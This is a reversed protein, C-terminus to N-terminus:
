LLACTTADPANTSCASPSPSLSPVSVTTASFVIAAARLLVFPVSRRKASRTRTRGPAKRSMSWPSRKTEADLKPNTSPSRPAHLCVAARFRTPYLAANLPLNVRPDPWVNKSTTGSLNVDTRAPTEVRKELELALGAPALGAILVTPPVSRVKLTVTKSGEGVGSGLAKVTKAPAVSHSTSRVRASAATEYAHARTPSAAVSRCTTSTSSAHESGAPTPVLISRTMRLPHLEADTSLLASRYRGGRMRWSVGALVLAAPPPENVIRPSPKPDTHGALAGAQAPGRLSGQQREWSTAADSAPGAASPPPPTAHASTVHVDSELRVHVVAGEVM